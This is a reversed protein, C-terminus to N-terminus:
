RVGNIKLADIVEFFNNTVEEMEDLTDALSSFFEDREMDDVEEEKPATFLVVENDFFLEQVANIINDNDIVVEKDPNCDQLLAILEKVKM